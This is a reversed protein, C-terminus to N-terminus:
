RDKEKRLKFADAFKQVRTNMKSHILNTVPVLHRAYIASTQGVLGALEDTEPRYRYRLPQASDMAILGRAHLKELLMATDSEPIYLRRAVGEVAWTERAHGAMILLAELEAVSDINKLIFQQVEAPILEDTV